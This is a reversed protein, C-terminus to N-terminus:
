KTPDILASISGVEVQAYPIGNKCLEARWSGDPRPGEVAETAYNPPAEKKFLGALFKM